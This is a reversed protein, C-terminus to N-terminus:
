HIEAYLTPRSFPNGAAKLWADPRWVREDDAEMTMSFSRKEFERRLLGLVCFAEMRRLPQTTQLGERLAKAPFASTQARPIVGPGPDPRVKRNARGSREWLARRLLNRVEPGVCGWPM